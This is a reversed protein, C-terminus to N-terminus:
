DKLKSIREFLSNAQNLLDTRLAKYHQKVLKPSDKGDPHNARSYMINYMEVADEIISYAADANQKPHFLIFLQSDSIVENALFAIDKKLNRISAM